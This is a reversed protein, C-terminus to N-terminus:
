EVDYGCIEAYDVDTYEDAQIDHNMVNKGEIDDAGFYHGLEHKLLLLVSDDSCGEPLWIDGSESAFARCTSFDAGCVIVDRYSDVDASTGVLRSSFDEGCHSSLDELIDATAALVWDPCDPHVYLESIDHCATACALLAAVLISHAVRNRTNM